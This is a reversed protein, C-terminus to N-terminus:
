EEVEMVSLESVASCDARAEDRGKSLAHLYTEVM